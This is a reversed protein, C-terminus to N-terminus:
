NVLSYLSLYDFIIIYQSSILYCLATSVVYLNVTGSYLMYCEFM